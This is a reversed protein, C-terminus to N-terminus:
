SSMMVALCSRGMTLVGVPDEEDDAERGVLLVVSTVIPKLVRFHIEFYAAATLSTKVLIFPRLSSSNLGKFTSSACYCDRFQVWAECGM